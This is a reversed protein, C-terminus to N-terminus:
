RQNYLELYGNEMIAELARVHVEPFSSQSSSQSPLSTHIGNAILKVRGTQFIIQVKDGVRNNEGLNMSLLLMAKRFEWPSRAQWDWSVGEAVLGDTSGFGSDMHFGAHPSALERNRLPNARHENADLILLSLIWSESAGPRSKKKKQLEAISHDLYATEGKMYTEESKM